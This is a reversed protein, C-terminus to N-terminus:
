ARTSGERETMRAHSSADGRNAQRRDVLRLVFQRHFGIPPNGEDRLDVKEAGDGHHQDQQEVGVGLPNGAPEDADVNEEHDRAEDDAPAIEVSERYRLDRQPFEVQRAKAPQGGGEGEAQQRGADGGREDQRRVRKDPEASRKESLWEVDLIENEPQLAIIEVSGQGLREEM